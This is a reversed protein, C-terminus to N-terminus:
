EFRIPLTTEASRGDITSAVITLWYSGHFFPPAAAPITFPLSFRGPGNRKLTFKYFQAAATVTVVDATTRVTWLVTEGAHVVSQSTQASLIAPSAAPAATV